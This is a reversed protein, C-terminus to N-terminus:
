KNAVIWPTNTFVIRGDETEIRHIQLSPTPAHTQNLSYLRSVKKLYARTERYPPVGSHMLVANEGANYAAVARTLDKDFYDLLWRLYTVGGRINQEPDFVDVVGFRKATDPHLQMLGKCDKRSVAQPNFDSEVQIIAEVLNVDVGQEGSIMEILPQFQRQRASRAPQREISERVQSLPGQPLGSPINTLVLSGNEDVYSRINEASLSPCCLLVLLSIGRITM